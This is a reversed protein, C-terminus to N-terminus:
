KIRVGLENLAEEYVALEMTLRSIEDRILRLRDEAGAIESARAQLTLQFLMGKVPAILRDRIIAIKAENPVDDCFTLVKDM